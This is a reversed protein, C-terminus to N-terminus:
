LHSLYNTKIAQSLQFVAMAYLPSHNYRTIVYFNHMGLWLEEYDQMPYSLLKVQENDSIHAPTQIGLEHLQGISIDPKVGKSLAKKYGDGNASVQSAIAGERQWHNAVFYNAVSAIADSSNHWIDRKHDLDFDKAYARFSSPMFQSLGM